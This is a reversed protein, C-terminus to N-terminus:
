ILKMGHLSVHGDLGVIIHDRDTIGLTKAVVIIDL